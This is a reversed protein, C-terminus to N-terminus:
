ETGAGFAEGQKSNPSHIANDDVPVQSGVQMLTGKGLTKEKTDPAGHGLYQGPSAYTIDTPGSGNDNNKAM